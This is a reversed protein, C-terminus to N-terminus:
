ELVESVAHNITAASEGWSFDAARDIARASWNENSSDTLLTEIGAAIQDASTPDVTIGAEGAVERLSARDSTVVPTGAKMSEVLPLGFGEYRSPFVFAEAGAYLHPLDDSDVYGLFHISDRCPSENYATELKPYSQFKQGAIALEPRIEQPLEELAEIIMHVNKRPELNGVYLLYNKELGYEGPVTTIKAEDLRSEDFRNSASGYAVDIKEEDVSYARTLDNKTSESVTIIRTANRVSRPLLTKMYIVYPRPLYWPCVEHILDHVVVVSDGRYTIPKLYNPGFYLDVDDARAARGATINEWWAHSITEPIPDLARPPSVPVRRVSSLDVEITDAGQSYVVPKFGEFAGHRIIEALYNGIGSINGSLADGAIGITRM